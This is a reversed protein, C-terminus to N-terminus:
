PNYLGRRGSSSSSSPDQLGEHLHVQHSNGGNGGEIRITRDPMDYPATLYKTLDVDMSRLSQYFALKEENKAREANLKEENEMRERRLAEEHDLNILSNEHKKTMEEMEMKAQARDTQGKLKLSEIEQATAEAEGELRLKTRREIAKDHMEQLNESAHYGRYVVRTINIGISESRGVLKKYISELDSLQSVNEVFSCYDMSSVFSVIDSCAANVMDAVPDETTDLMRELDVIEYFIMVKVAVLADDATRVDKVNYYFSTPIMKLVSFKQAKPIIHAKRAPDEGHWEFNHQWEFNSPFHVKPGRIVVRTADETAPGGQGGREEGERRYVVLVEHAALNIAERVEIYSHELPDFFMSTPGPFNEIHGDLFRVQLYEYQTARHIQLRRVTKMFTVLFRPGDVFECRGGISWVAVRQGERVVTFGM